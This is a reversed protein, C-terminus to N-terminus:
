RVSEAGAAQPCSAGPAFRETMWAIAADTATGPNYFLDKAMRQRVDAHQTPDALSGAVVDVIKEPKKVIVGGQRGWTDMDLMSGKREMIRAILKPVDLFVMPRDMLSYESSVSSADSILLDALFLLPVVDFSRVVKTHDDELKALEAFWDTTKNKPHDHPKILLDFRNSDRLRTIVEVGMTELSNAKDGTPAYLIVPRSGDFGYQRLLDQRDLEGNVLRDTKAFGLRLGRPDDETLLDAERFKNEMYPGVLMYYDCNMNDSRVARNRFSIGHFLQIRTKVKRPTILKTNAALLVDFDRKCIEDVTLVLAEPVEFQGYLARADYDYGSDSKSRVGGSLFVSFAPNQVLRDYIPKFCVFHVPAYGTFLVTTPGSQTMNMGM